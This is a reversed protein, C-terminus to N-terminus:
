FVNVCFSWSFASLKLRKKAETKLVSIVWIVFLNWGPSIMFEWIELDIGVQDPFFELGQFRRLALSRIPQMWPDKFFNRLM